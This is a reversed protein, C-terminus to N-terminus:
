RSRWCGSNKPATGGRKMGGSSGVAAASVALPTDPVLVREDQDSHSWLGITILSCCTTRSILFTTVTLGFLLM